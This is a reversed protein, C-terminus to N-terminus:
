NEHDREELPAREYLAWHRSGYRYPWRGRLRLGKGALWADLAAADYSRRWRLRVQQDTTAGMLRVRVARDIATSAPLASVGAEAGLEPAESLGSVLRAGLQRASEKLQLQWWDALAREIPDPPEAGPSVRHEVILLDGPAHTYVAAATLDVWDDAAQDLAGQGLMVIRRFNPRRETAFLAQATPIDRYDACLAFVGLSRSHVGGRQQRGRSPPALVDAVSGVAREAHPLLHPSADLLWVSQLPSRGMLLRVLHSVLAGRGSGLVVLEELGGGRLRELEAVVLEAPAQLESLRVEETAARLSWSGANTASVFAWAGDYLGGERLVHAIAQPVHSPSYRPARLVPPLIGAKQDEETALEQLVAALHRRRPLHRAAELNSVSGRSVRSYSSLQAQSLNRACRYSEILRGLPQLLHAHPPLRM